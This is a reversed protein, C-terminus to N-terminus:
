AGTDAWEKTELHPIRLEMQAGEVPMAAAILQISRRLAQTFEYTGDGYNKDLKKTYKELEQILNGGTKRLAYGRLIALDEPSYVEHLPPRKKTMKRREM